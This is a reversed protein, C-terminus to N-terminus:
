SPYFSTSLYTNIATNRVIPLLLFLSYHLVPQTLLSVILPASHLNKLYLAYSMLLHLHIVCNPCFGTVMHIITSLSSLHFKLLYHAIFALCSIWWSESFQLVTRFVSSVYVQTCTDRYTHTRPFKWTSVILCFLLCCKNVYPKAQICKLSTLVQM